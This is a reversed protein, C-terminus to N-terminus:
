RMDAYEYDWILDDKYPKLFIKIQNGTQKFYVKEVHKVADNEDLGKIAILWEVYQPPTFTLM